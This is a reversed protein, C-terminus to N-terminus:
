TITVTFPRFSSKKNAAGVLEANMMIRAARGNGDVFPHLFVFGFAAAGAVCVPDVQAEPDLLGSMM